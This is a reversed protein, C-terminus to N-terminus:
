IRLINALFGVLEHAQVQDEVAQYMGQGVHHMIVGQYRGAVQVGPLVVNGGKIIDGANNPALILADVIDM